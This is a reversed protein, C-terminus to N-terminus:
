VKRLEALQGTVFQQYAEKERRLAVNRKFMSLVLTLTPKKVLLDHYANFLSTTSRRLQASLYLCKLVLKQTLRACIDAVISCKLPQKLSAQWLRKRDALRQRLQVIEHVLPLFSDLM